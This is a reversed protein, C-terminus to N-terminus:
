RYRMYEIRTVERDLWMLRPKGSMTYLYEGTEQNRMHIPFRTEEQYAMQQCYACYEFIMGHKCRERKAVKELVEDENHELKSLIDM